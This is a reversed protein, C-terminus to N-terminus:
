GWGDRDLGDGALDMGQWIWERGSVAVEAFSGQLAKAVYCAIDRIMESCRGDAPKMACLLELTRAGNRHSVVMQASTAM